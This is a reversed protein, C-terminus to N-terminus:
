PAPCTTTPDADYWCINFLSASTAIDSPNAWQGYPDKMELGNASLSLSPTQGNAAFQPGIKAISFNALPLIGSSSSPAEEIWEASLEASSYRFTQPGWSQGTTEDTINLAWNQKSNKCQSVCDVAASVVDGPSITIPITVPANPLMEYKAVYQSGSATARQATVVQILTNDKEDCQQDKCAGGIGVWTASSELSYGPFWTVAPVTWSASASTYHQGTQWNRLIYGSWNRSLIEYESNRAVSGDPNRRVEIPAFRAIQQRVPLLGAPRAALSGLATIALLAGLGAARTFRRRMM